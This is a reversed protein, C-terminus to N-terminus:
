VFFFGLLDLIVLIPEEGTGFEVPPNKMFDVPPRRFNGGKAQWSPVIGGPNILEPPNNSITM